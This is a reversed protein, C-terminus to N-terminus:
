NRSESDTANSAGLQEKAKLVMLNVNLVTTWVPEPIEPVDTTSEIDIALRDNDRLMVYKSDAVLIYHQRPEDDIVNHIPNFLRRFLLAAKELTCGLIKRLWMCVCVARIKHDTLPEDDSLVTESGTGVSILLEFQKKHLKLQTRLDRITHTADM